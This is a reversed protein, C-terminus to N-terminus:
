NNIVNIKDSCSIMKVFLNNFPTMGGELSPVGGGGNFHRTLNTANSNKVDGAPKLKAKKWGHKM